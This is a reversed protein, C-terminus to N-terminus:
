FSLMHIIYRAIRTELQIALRTFDENQNMSSIKLALSDLEQVQGQLIDVRSVLKEMHDEVRTCDAKQEDIANEMLRELFNLVPNLKNTM